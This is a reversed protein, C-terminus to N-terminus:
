PWRVWDWDADGDASSQKQLVQRQEGGTPLQTEPTEPFEVIIKPEHGHWDIYGGDITLFRLAKELRRLGRALGRRALPQGEKPVDEFFAPGTAM